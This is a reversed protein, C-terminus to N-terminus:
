AIENNRLIFETCRCFWESGGLGKGEVSGSPLRIWSKKICHTQLRPIPELMHSRPILVQHMWKPTEASPASPISDSAKRLANSRNRSASGGPDCHALDAVMCSKTRTIQVDEACMLNGRRCNSSPWARVKLLRPLFDTM